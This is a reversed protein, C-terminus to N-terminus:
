QIYGLNKLQERLAPDIKGASGPAYLPRARKAKILLAHLAEARDTQTAALDSKETPDQAIDYLERRNRASNVVLKYPAQVVGRWTQEPERETAAFLTRPGNAGLLSVGALYPPKAAGATETLTPYVDVLGVHEDVVTAARPGNPLKVLLPVRMTEAYLDSGHILNRHDGFAEGHDSTIVILARAADPLAALVAGVSEDDARIESDYLDVLLQMLDPRQLFFDKKLQGSFNQDALSKVQEANVQTRWQRLFPEIPKYPHHADFYHLYLFYPRRQARAQKLLPLWDKFQADVPGRDSFGFAKYHDFGQAMGYKEHMHYNASAGFTEYGAAKLTEALTVFQENLTLQYTVQSAYDNAEAKVVGHDWPYVGTFLSAMSPVTWTAAAHANAYRVATAAFRDLNPTTPRAYGYAGVHDARLTDIVILVIPPKAAGQLRKCGFGVSLVILL